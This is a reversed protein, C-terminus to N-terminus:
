LGSKQKSKTYVLKLVLCAKNSQARHGAGQARRGLGWAGHEMSWAQRSQLCDAQGTQRYCVPLSVSDHLCSLGWAGM